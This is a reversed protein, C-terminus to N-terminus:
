PLGNVAEEEVWNNRGPKRALTCGALYLVLAQDDQSFLLQGENTVNVEEGSNM